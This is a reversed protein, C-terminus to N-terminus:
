RVKKMGGRSWFIFIFIFYFYSFCIFLFRTSRGTYSPKEPSIKVRSHTEAEGILSGEKRERGERMPQIALRTHASSSRRESHDDVRVRPSGRTTPAPTKAGLGSFDDASVRRSDGAIRVPWTPILHGSLRQRM